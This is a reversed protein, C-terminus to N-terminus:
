PELAVLFAVGGTACRADISIKEHPPAAPM